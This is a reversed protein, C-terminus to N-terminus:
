TRTVLLLYAVGLVLGFVVHGILSTADFNPVGPAGPFGMASLWVPMVLAAAVLWVLVGYGVGVVASVGISEVRERLPRASLLAAFAFGFVVGHLVHILFGVGLAPGEIGYMAPIAMELVGRMQLLMLGGMVVSAVGGSVGGWLMPSSDSRLAFASGTESSM